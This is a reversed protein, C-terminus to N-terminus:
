NGTGGLERSWNLGDVYLGLPNKRLHGEDRPPTMVITLIATWRETASAAGNSFKREIWRVQFSNPSARIVSTVEIAISSQGVNAFPDNARAFENLALAGRQTTFDYAELWSDRLVVPDIPISRVDRIFRELHHAIQADTPQYHGTVPGVGKVEGQADVEVIYPTIKLRTSQWVLGGVLAVSLLSSCVAMLQWDRAQVRASGIRDDWLQGAAQYPSSPEPTESYRVGARKFHM